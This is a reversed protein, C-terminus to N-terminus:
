QCKRCFLQCPLLQLPQWTQVGLSVDVLSDKDSVSGPMSTAAQRCASVRILQRTGKVSVELLEVIFEQKKFHNSSTRHLQVVGFSHILVRCM